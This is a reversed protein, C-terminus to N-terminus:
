RTMSVTFPGAGISLRQLRGAYVADLRLNRIRFPRVHGPGHTVTYDYRCTITGGEAARDRPSVLIARRGDYMRFAPPCDRAEAFRGFGTIPDLIGRPVAKPDSLATAESAPTVTTDRVVGNAFLVDIRRGASNAARYLTGDAAPLLAAEFTGDAAGLPTNTLASSIRGPTYDLHGVVAGGLRVDFREAIAPAALLVLAAFARLLM